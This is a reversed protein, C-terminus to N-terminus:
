EEQQSSRFRQVEEMLMGVLRQEKRQRTWEQWRWLCDGLRAEEWCALLRMQVAAWQKRRVFLTWRRWARAVRTLELAQLATALGQRHAQRHLALRRLYFFGRKGHKHTNTTLLVDESWEDEEEEEQGPGKRQGELTRRRNFEVAAEWQCRAYQEVYGRHQWRRLLRALRWQAARIEMSALARRKQKKANYFGAKEEWLRFVKALQKKRHWRVALQRWRDRTLKTRTRAGWRFLAARLSHRRHYLGERAQSQDRRRQKEETWRRWKGLALKAQIRSVAAALHARTETCSAHQENRLELWKQWQRLARRRMITRHHPAILAALRLRREARAQVRHHWRRLLRRLAGQAWEAQTKARLALVWQQMCHRALAQKRAAAVQLASQQQAHFRRWQGWGHRLQRALWRRKAKGELLDGGEHHAVAKDMKKQQQKHRATNTFLRVLGQVGGKEKLHAEVQAAQRARTAQKAQRKRQWQRWAWRLRHKIVLPPYRALAAERRERSHQLGHHFLVLARHLHRKATTAQVARQHAHRALRTRLLGWAMSLKRQAVRQYMADLRQASPVLFPLSPSAPVPLMLMLMEGGGRRQGDHFALTRPSSSSSSPTSSAPQLQQGQKQRPDQSRGITELAARARRRALVRSIWQQLAKRTARRQFREEGKELVAQTDQHHALLQQWGPCKRLLSPTSEQRRLLRRAAGEKWRGLVKAATVRLFHGQGRAVRAKDAAVLGQLWTGRWQQLLAQKMRAQAHMRGTAALMWQDRQRRRCAKGLQRVWYAWARETTRWTNAKRLRAKERRRRAMYVHLWRRVARRQLRDEYYADVERLARRTERRRHCWEGEWRRLAQEKARLGWWLKGKELLVAHAQSTTVFAALRRFARQQQRQECHLDVRRHLTRTARRRAKGNNRHVAELGVQKLRRHHSRQVAWEELAHYYRADARRRWWRRLGRQLRLRLVARTFVVAQQEELLVVRMMSLHQARLVKTRRQVRRLAHKAQVRARLADAHALLHHSARRHQLWQKWQRLARAEVVAARHGDARRKNRAWNAAVAAYEDDYPLRPLPPPPPPPPPADDEEEEEHGAPHAQFHSSLLTRRLSQARAELQRRQRDLASLTSSPSSSSAPSPTRPPPTPAPPQHHGAATGSGGQHTSHALLRRLTGEHLAGLMHHPPPEQQQQKDRHRHRGM